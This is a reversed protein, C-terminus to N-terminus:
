KRVFVFRQFNGYITHKVIEGRNDAEFFVTLPGHQSDGTFFTPSHSVLDILESDPSLLRLRGDHISITSTASPEFDLHYTGTLNEMKKPTLVVAELSTPHLFAPLIYETLMQFPQNALPSDYNGGTFVVVMGQDPLVIIYQGGNGSAWFATVLDRAIYWWGRQWLYGYDVGGLMEGQKTTSKDIWEESMLRQGNWEGRNLMLQGIKAMERPIMRAGGGIWARGKPSFNWRFKEIALPEFLYREAFEDLELGSVRAVAEGVLILSSSNYAWYEGPSYAFPLDLSYQVWDDTDYMADECAFNTALDACEYGSMMSLLHRIEVRMAKDTWGDAPQYDDEFYKYIPEEESRILEKDIAIGTLMSGISKTASRIEHLTNRDNGDFYEELVLADDKVVLVGHINVYDGAQTRSIMSDLLAINAGFRTPSAVKWGDRLKEPARSVDQKADPSCDAFLM